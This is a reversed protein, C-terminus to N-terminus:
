TGFHTNSCVPGILKLCSSRRAPVAALLLSPLAREPLLLLLLSTPALPAHLLAPLSAALLLRPVQSVHKVVLAHGIIDSCCALSSM